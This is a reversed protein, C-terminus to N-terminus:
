AAVKPQAHLRTYAQVYAEVMVDLSCHTVAHDRCRGRDMAVVHRVAAAAAAADGPDVLVGCSEPVFESLGGRRYGIVPTGCAMSEAAVLGYPEEWAPTLVMAASHGVLARLANIDLHGVYQADPGLHPEVQSRFYGPDCIPGALRIRRGCGAAIRLAEHPAKEPVIRGVWVLDEGGPGPLWQGTDVGNRVVCARTVHAWQRATHESVAVFRSRTQDMMAIAPELWPTPPTHLTTLMPASCTQALAVPLYHLSNNHIVDVDQRDRLELMVQLYAHHERLWAEPPMSVDARATESLVLPEVAIERADLTPDSGPGAFLTVDIGRSRLGRVLAWTLSELGGAFPQRLPHRASALIVVHM